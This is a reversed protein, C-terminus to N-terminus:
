HNSTVIGSHHGRSSLQNGGGAADCKNTLNVILVDLDPIEHSLLEVKM